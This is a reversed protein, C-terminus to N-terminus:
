PGAYVALRATVDPRRALKRCDNKGTQRALCCLERSVDM